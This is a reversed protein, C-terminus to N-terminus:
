ARNVASNGTCQVAPDVAVVVRVSVLANVGCKLGFLVFSIVNLVVVCVM